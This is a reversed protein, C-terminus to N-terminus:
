YFRLISMEDTTQTNLFVRTAILPYLRWNEEESLPHIPYREALIGSSIATIKSEMDDSKAISNEIKIIGWSPGKRIDSYMRMHWFIGNSKEGIKFPMGIEDKGLGLCAEEEVASLEPNNYIGVWNGHSLVEKSPRLSGDVLILHEEDGTSEAYTLFVNEKVDALIDSIRITASNRIGQYSDASKYFEVDLGSEVHSDIIGESDDLNDPVLVVERLVPEFFPQLQGSNRALVGSSVIAYLIPLAASDDQPIHGVIYARALAGQFFVFSTPEFKTKGTKYDTPEPPPADPNRVANLEFIEPSPIGGLSVLLSHTLRLYDSM